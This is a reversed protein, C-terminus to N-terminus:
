DGINTDSFEVLVETGAAVSEGAAPSQRIAKGTQDEPSIRIKLGKAALADSAALRTMGVVNPVTVLESENSGEESHEISTSETYLLVGSGKVASQGEAPVQATVLESPDDQVTAVLGLEELADEAEAITLGTLAPVAVSEESGEPLYGAHRLTEELMQKVFPAAVTSGFITGVQPEDVLILCVFEPDDAPAFGIFSAVLKGEAIKGDEYKQATGTKGGIRYGPIAANRGSGDSVVSEAIQRVLASTEESIVRRVVTPENQLIVTGDNAVIRDLVYPQMLNGGNVVACVATALQLPTVAISQGFGIRALTNETIYKQHTVIGSAEGTINSGTSSGFGFAYIYEYFTEVGMAQAMAM